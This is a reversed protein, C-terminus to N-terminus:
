QRHRHRFRRRRPRSRGHVHRPLRGHCSRARPDSRNRHRHCRSGHRSRPLRPWSRVMRLRRRRIQLRGAPLQYLPHRRRHHVAIVPYKLVGEKVMAHLRIVGTTTEETGAIVDTLGDKRKTHLLTVLDCGDDMTIHPKTDITALIHNYYSDNDEGKIAFTSIGYHAVLAAAVDDQTSLPNSACLAIEAGGDRLTIM